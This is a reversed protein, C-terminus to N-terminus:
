QCDSVVIKCNPCDELAGREAERLTRGWGIGYKVRDGAYAGCTEFWVAVECDDNGASLCERMANREAEKRTSGWGIGYGVEHAATGQSDNVAIAGFALASSCTALLGAVVFAAKITNKRLGTM